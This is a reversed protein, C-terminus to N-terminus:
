SFTSFSLFKFEDTLLYNIPHCGCTQKSQGTTLACSVFRIQPDGFAYSFCTDMQKYFLGSRSFEDAIIHQLMIFTNGKKLYTSLGVLKGDKEYMHLRVPLFLLLFYDRVLLAAIRNKVNLMESNKRLNSAKILPLISRSFLVKFFVLHDPIVREQFDYEQYTKLKKKYRWRVRSDRFSTVYEEYSHYPLLDVGYWHDDQKHFCALWISTYAYHIKFVFYHFFMLFFNKIRIFRLRWVRNVFREDLLFVFPAYVGLKVAVLLPFLLCSLPIFVFFTIFGMLYHFRSETHPYIQLTTRDTKISLRDGDAM